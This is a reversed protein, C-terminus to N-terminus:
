SARKGHVTTTTARTSARRKTTTTTHRPTTTPAKRTPATRAATVRYAVVLWSRGVPEFTLEVARDITITGKATTAQVKVAFKTAVYVVTGFADVLASVAVPTSQENLTTTKGVSLDTLVPEDAGVAAARIGAAFVTSYDHGLKGTELPALIASDVYRQATALAARRVADSVTGRTGARQIDTSGITLLRTSRSVSVSQKSTPASSSASQTSERGGGNSCGAGLAVVVSALAATDRRARWLLRGTARM